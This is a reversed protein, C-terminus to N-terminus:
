TCVLPLPLVLQCSNTTGQGSNRVCFRAHPAVRLSFFPFLEGDGLRSSAGVAPCWGAMLNGRLQLLIITTKRVVTQHLQSLFSRSSPAFEKLWSLPPPRRAMTLLLAAPSFKSEHIKFPRTGTASCLKQATAFNVFKPSCALLEVACKQAHTCSM